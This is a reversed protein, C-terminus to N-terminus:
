TFTFTEESIENRNSIMFIAIGIGTGIIYYMIDEIADLTIALSSLYQVFEIGIIIIIAILFGISIKAKYSLKFSTFSIFVAIGGIVHVSIDMINFFDTIFLHHYEMFILIIFIIISFVKYKSDLESRIMLFSAFILGIIIILLSYIELIM